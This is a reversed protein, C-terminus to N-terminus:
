EGKVIQPREKLCVPLRLSVGGFSRSKNYALPESYYQCRPWLSEVIIGIVPCEGCYEGESPIQNM